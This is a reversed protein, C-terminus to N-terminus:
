INVAFEQAMNNLLTEMLRYTDPIEETRALVQDKTSVYDDSAWDQSHERAYYTVMKRTM